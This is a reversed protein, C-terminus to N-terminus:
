GALKVFAHVRELNELREETEEPSVGLVRAAIASDFEYGQVSAVTLLEHDAEDLQGIKREIMGLVSEPLQREIEPLGHILRWGGDAQEIAGQDRLYRVLDAMFLPSGETKEHILATFEPPFHHAPFKLDLYEAIEAEHLFGLQIERCVGRTQLDPKIQLFPHKVLQMDSPRYTVVVLVNSGEFKGALFSLLDVTSEDAWHLDDLFLVLPRSRSLEQVCAVFDLKLREQTTEKLQELLRVSEDSEDSLPAIQAYWAPASRKIVPEAAEGESSQLLSDLAELVPLYADSGGIRESSRGRAVTCSGDVVAEALFEEVLTTKGIGPEGAVCMLSGRGRGAAELAGRLSELESLRGVTRRESRAIPKETGGSEPKTPFEVESLNMRRLLDSYRQDSRLNDFM